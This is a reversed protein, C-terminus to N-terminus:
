IDWPIQFLGLSTKFLLMGQKTVVPLPSQLPSINLWEAKFYAGLTPWSLEENLERSQVKVSQLTLQSVEHIHLSRCTSYM